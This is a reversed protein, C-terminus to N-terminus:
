AGVQKLWDRICSGIREIDENELEGSHMIVNRSRELTKLIHKMWEQSQLYVEFLEWNQIIISILEGFDTYNLPEDGRPSHWRVKSEEEHRSKAKSRIGEPVKEEWWNEGVEELFVKSVFDRVYNEFASIATYVVAMRRSRAVIERDLVDLSLSKAIEEDVFASMPLRSQAQTKDLAEQTLLGRFTFSYLQDANM